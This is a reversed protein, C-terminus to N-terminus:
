VHARGIKYPAIWISSAISRKGCSRSACYIRHEYKQDNALLAWAAAGRGGASGQVESLARGRAPLAADNGAPTACAGAARRFREGACHRPGALGHRADRCQGSLRLTPLPWPSGAPRLRWSPQWNAVPGARSQITRRAQISVDLAATPEDCVIFDPELTVARAIGIRRVVVDRA